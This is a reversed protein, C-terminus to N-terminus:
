CAFRVQSYEVRSRGDPKSWEVGVIFWRALATVALGVVATAVIMICRRSQGIAM